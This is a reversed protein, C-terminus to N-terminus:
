TYNNVILFLDNIDIAGDCNPDGTIDDSGMRSAVMILDLINVEGDGTLDNTETCAAACTGAQCTGSCCYEGADCTDSGCSCQAGAQAQDTCTPLTCPTAQQGGSCCYGSTYTAGDCVCEATIQAGITCAPTGSPTITVRYTDASGYAIISIFLVAVLFKKIMINRYM